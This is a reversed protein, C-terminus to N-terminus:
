IKGPHKLDYCQRLAHNWNQLLEKGLTLSESLHEPEVPKFIFGLAGLLLCKSVNVVKIDGTMFFFKCGLEKDLCRRLFQDGPCDPMNIDSLCLKIHEREINEIATDVNTYARATFDPFNDSIYQATFEVIDEDDDVVAIKFPHEIIM